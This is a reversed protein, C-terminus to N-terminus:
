FDNKSFDYARYFLEMYDKTNEILKIRIHSSNDRLTFCYPLNNIVDINQHHIDGEYLYLTGNFNEPNKFFIMPEMYYHRYLDKNKWIEGTEQNYRSLNYSIWPYHSLIPKKIKESSRIYATTYPSSRIINITPIRFCCFFKVM